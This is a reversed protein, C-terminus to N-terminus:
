RAEARNLAELYLEVYSAASREWSFDGAMANQMLKRWKLKDLNFIGIAEKVKEVLERAEYNLFKFGNGYGTAPDFDEIIDDLGGTARVLPITGYKLSYIQNLGCPEYRSPMLFLDCGAEIKHALRNDFALRLAMKGPYKEAMEKLLNQYREDGTGLVILGLDMALLEEAAQALLDFGKQAALRSIMGLLPKGKLGELGFERLLDEKCKEKGSLDSADYRAVINKDTAPNWDKYDVGNIIGFLDQSREMLVGHLGYGYEPTQIEQSYKKSVTNLVESYILGAKLYSAQGYFEIGKPNFIELPLNAVALAEPGFTGQYALNHITFVTATRSLAPAERYHLKLYLPLLASQWDHCQIVEPKLGLAIVMDLVARSFFAFREANDPYDGQPTGYLYERDFYSENEIFYIPLKQPYSLSAQYVSAEQRTGKIPVSLRLKLPTIKRKSKRVERHLPMAVLVEHGLKKLALPLSGVVDALGGTKAFPVVEPSVQLITLKREM